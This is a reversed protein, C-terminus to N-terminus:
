VDLHNRRPQVTEAKGIITWKADLTLDSIVFYNGKRITGDKECWFFGYSKRIIYTGFLDNKAIEDYSLTDIMEGTTLENKLGNGGKISETM